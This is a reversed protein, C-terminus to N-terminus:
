GATNADRRAQEEAAKMDEVLKEFPDQPGAATPLLAMAERLEKSALAFASGRGAMAAAGCVQAAQRVLAVTLAHQPGLLNQEGLYALQAHAATELPSAHPSLPEMGPLTPQPDMNM